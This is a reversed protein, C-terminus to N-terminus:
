ICRVAVYLITSASNFCSPNQKMVYKSEKSITFNKSKPALIHRFFIANNLKKIALILKVNDQKKNLLQTYM